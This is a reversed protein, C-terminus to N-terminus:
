SVSASPKRKPKYGRKTVAKRESKVDEEVKSFEPELEAIYRQVQREGLGLREALLKKGPHPKRAEDWWFDCLQILVALHTPNLGIRQQAKLLLSPVICFGLKMVKKGWKKESVRGSKSPHPQVVNGSAEIVLSRLQHSAKRRQEC